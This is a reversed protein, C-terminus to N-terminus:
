ATTKKSPEPQSLYLGTAGLIIFGLIMTVKPYRELFHNFLVAFIIASIATLGVKVISPVDFGVTTNVGITPQVDGNLFAKATESSLIEGIKDFINAM